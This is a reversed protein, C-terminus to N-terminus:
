LLAVNFFATIAITKAIANSQKILVGCPTYKKYDKSKM